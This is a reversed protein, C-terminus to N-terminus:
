GEKDGTNTSTGDWIVSHDSIKKIPCEPHRATRCEEPFKEWMLKCGVVQMFGVTCKSCSDPPDRYVIFM